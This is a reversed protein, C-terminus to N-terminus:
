EEKTDATSIAALMDAKTTAGGLDVDHADAWTKIDANKWSDDPAGETPVEEPEEKPDEAPAGLTREYERIVKIPAYYGGVTTRVTWAEEGVREAAALLAQAVEKSRPGALGYGDEIGAM